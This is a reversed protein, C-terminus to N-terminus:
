HFYVVVGGVALWFASCTAFMGLWAFRRVDKMEAIETKM